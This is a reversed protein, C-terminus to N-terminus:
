RATAQTKDAEYGPAAKIPIYVMCCQSHCYRTFALRKARRQRPRTRRTRPRTFRAACRTSQKGRGSPDSLLPSCRSYSQVVLAAVSLKPNVRSYKAQWPRLPCSPMSLVYQLRPSSNFTPVRLRPSSNSASPSSEGGRQADFVQSAVAQTLCLSRPSHHARM